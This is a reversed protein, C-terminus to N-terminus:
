SRRTKRRRAALREDLIRRLAYLEKGTLRADGAL